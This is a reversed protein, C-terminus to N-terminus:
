RTAAGKRPMDAVSYGIRRRFGKQDCGVQQRVSEKGIEFEPGEVSDRDRFRSRFMLTPLLSHIHIRWLGRKQYYIEYQILGVGRPTFTLVFM